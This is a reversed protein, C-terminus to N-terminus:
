VSATGPINMTSTTSGLLNVLTTFEPPLLSSFPGEADFSIMLVLLHVLCHKVIAKPNDFSYLAEELQIGYPLHLVEPNPFKKSHDMRRLQFNQYYNSVYQDALAFVQRTRDIVARDDSSQPLHSRWSWLNSTQPQQPATALSSRSSVSGTSRTKHKRRRRHTHEREGPSSHMHLPMEQRLSQSSGCPTTLGSREDQAVPTTKPEKRLKQSIHWGTGPM